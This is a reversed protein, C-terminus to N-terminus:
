ENAAKIWADGMKDLAQEKTLPKIAEAPPAGGKPPAKHLRARSDITQLAESKQKRQFGGFVENFYQDFVTKLVDVKKGEYFQKSLEKNERLYDTVSGVHAQLKLPTSVDLGAATCLEKIKAKGSEFLEETAKDEREKEVRDRNGQQEMFKDFKEMFNPLNKLEPHLKLFYAQAEKDEDSLQTEEPKLEPKAPPQTLKARLEEPTGFSEYDKLKQLVEDLRHKPIVKGGRVDALIQKDEDTLGEAKEIPPQEVPEPVPDPEPAAKEEPETTGNMRDFIKDAASEFTEEPAPTAAEQNEM